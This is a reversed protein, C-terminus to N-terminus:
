NMTRWEPSGVEVDRGFRTGSLDEFPIPDPARIPEPRRESRGRVARFVLTIIILAYTSLAM